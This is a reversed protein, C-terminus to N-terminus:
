KAPSSHLLDGIAHVRADADDLQKATAAFAFAHMVANTACASSLPGCPSKPDGGHCRECGIQAQQHASTSWDVVHGRGPATPTSVHCEVCHNTQVQAACVTAVPQLAAVLPGIM